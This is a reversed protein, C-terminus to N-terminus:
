KRHIRQYEEYGMELSYGKNFHHGIQKEPPPPTMYSGFIFKLYADYDEPVNIYTDEFPVKKPTGLWSKRVYGKSPINGCYNTVYVADKYPIRKMWHEIMRNRYQFINGWFFLYAFINLGIDKFFTRKHIKRRHGYPFCLYVNAWSRVNRFRWKVKYPKDKKSIGDLPFIDIWVGHNQRIGCFFNEIYTTSSDRLKAFNPLYHKDTKYTQLFYKKDSFPNVLKLLKEYDERPMMVDLDDDWPIFGKHRIAGICTGGNAFYVLNHEECVRAFEKFLELQKKQLENM